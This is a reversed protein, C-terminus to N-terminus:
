NLHVFFRRTAEAASRSGLDAVAGPLARPRLSFTSVVHLSRMPGPRPESCRGNLHKTHPSM